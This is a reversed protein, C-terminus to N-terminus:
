KAIINKINDIIKAVM